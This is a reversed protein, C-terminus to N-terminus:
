KLTRVRPIDALHAKDRPSSSEGEPTAPTFLKAEEGRWRELFAAKDAPLLQAHVETIGVRAALTQAVAQRDGTLLAIDSIGLRRLEAIVEATMDTILERVALGLRLSEGTM